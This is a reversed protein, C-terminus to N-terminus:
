SLSRRMGFFMFSIKDAVSAKVRLDRLPGAVIPIRHAGIGPQIETDYELFYSGGAAGSEFNLAVRYTRMSTDQNCINLTGVIQEGAQVLYLSTEDTTDPRLAAILDYNESAM